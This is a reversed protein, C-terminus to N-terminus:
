HGPGVPLPFGDGKISAKTYQIGCLAIDGGCFIRYFWGTHYLWTCTIGFIPKPNQQLGASTKLALDLHHHYTLNTIKLARSRWWLMSAENKTAKWCSGYWSQPSFGNVRSAWIPISGKLKAEDNLKIMAWRSAPLTGAICLWQRSRSSMVQTVWYRAAFGNILSVWLTYRTCDLSNQAHRFKHLSSAMRLCVEFIAKDAFRIRQLNFVESASPIRM